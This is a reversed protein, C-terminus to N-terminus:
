RAYKKIYHLYDRRVVITRTMKTSKVQGVAVFSMCRDCCPAQLLVSGLRCGGVRRCTTGAQPATAFAAAAAQAGAASHGSFRAAFAATVLGQHQEAAPAAAYQAVAQRAQQKSSV